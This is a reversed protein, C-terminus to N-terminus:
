TTRLCPRCAAPVAPHTSQPPRAPFRCLRRVAACRASRYRRVRARLRSGCSSRSQTLRKVKPKPSRSFGVSRAHTSNSNACRDSSSVPAKTRPRAPAAAGSSIPLSRSDPASNRKWARGIRACRASPHRGWGLSSQPRLIPPTACHTSWDRSRTSTERRSSRASFSCWGFM